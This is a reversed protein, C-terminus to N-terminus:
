SREVDHRCLMPGMLWKRGVWWNGTARLHFKTEFDLYYVKSKPVSEKNLFSTFLVCHVKPSQIHFHKLCRRKLM